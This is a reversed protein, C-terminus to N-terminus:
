GRGRAAEPGSPNVVVVAVRGRPPLQDLVCESADVVPDRGMDHGLDVSLDTMYDGLPDGTPLDLLAYLDAPTPSVAMEKATAASVTLQASSVLQNGWTHDGDAHTNVLVDISTNSLQRTLADLM